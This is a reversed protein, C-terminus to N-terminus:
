MRLFRRRLLILALVPILFLAMFQNGSSAVISCPLPAETSYEDAGMDFGAGFPRWQNDFDTFIGVYIGSDICPSDSRLHYDESGIFRPDADINGSGPWGGEVDSYSVTPSGDIQHDEFTLARNGWLICNTITQSYGPSVYIGGANFEAENEAITSNVITPSIAHIGGGEGDFLHMSWARNEVIMCNVITPSDGKIGGGDTALNMSITSNKVTPSGQIGGGSSSINGTITCSIITPSGGIGGGNGADNLSIMCNKITPWSNSDCYIGGGYFASNESITCNSIIPGSSFCYIGGGYERFLEGTGSGNQIRFGDIVAVAEGESFTVVSGARNGDVVTFDAGAGSHVTIEKGLFDINEVYIGAAVLILDGDVAVDIGFQIECFPDAFIGTGPCPNNDDVFLTGAISPDTFLFLIFFLATPGIPFIKNM